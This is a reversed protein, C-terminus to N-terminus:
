DIHWKVWLSKPGEHLWVNQSSLDSRSVSSTMDVRLLFLCREQVQECKVCMRVNMRRRRKGTDFVSVLSTGLCVYLEALCVVGENGWTCRLYFMGSGSNQLTVHVYAEAECKRM